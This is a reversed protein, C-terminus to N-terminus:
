RGHRIRDWDDTMQLKGAYSLIREVRLKRVYERLAKVVTETKTKSKSLKQAEELLDEPINLTTKM